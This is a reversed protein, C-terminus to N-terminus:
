SFDFAFEGGVSARYGRDMSKQEVLM